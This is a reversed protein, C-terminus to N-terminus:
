DSVPSIHFPRLTLILLSYTGHYFFLTSMHVARQILLINASSLLDAGRIILSVGRHFIPLPVGFLLTLPVSHSEYYLPFDIVLSSYRM